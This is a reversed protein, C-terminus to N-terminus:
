EIQSEGWHLIQDGFRKHLTNLATQLRRERELRKLDQQDDWFSLQQYPSGLGTVGIGLLRVPKGQTWTLQFLRLASEFIEEAHNCPHDLTTQRTFTSFDSWRLKIRITTGGLHKHQLRTAVSESLKKLTDRLIEFDRIDKSFTTERSISKIDHSTSVPSDDIGHSGRFLYHGFKGFQSVLTGESQNALDGISYIDSDELITATKPGIGPLSMVPLPTLFDAEQGPPVFQIANPPGESHASAKGTDTAVKAVLKSTAIGLSSPLGIEHRITMQLRTALEELPEDIDTLDLYAEDISIQEVQKTIDFLIKMVRKSAKVYERYHGSIIILGPCLRLARSMPMASRVGFTRAPYSCSAVVGREGPKGGVAFAKGQLDPDLQEEVSCFFADLDIHIIKRSYGSDTM